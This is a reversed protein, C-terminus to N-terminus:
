SLAAMTTLSQMFLSCQPVVEALKKILM